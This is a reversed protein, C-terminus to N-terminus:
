RRGVEILIERLLKEISPYEQGALAEPGEVKMPLGDARFFLDDTEVGPLAAPIVLDAPQVPSQKFPDIIVRPKDALAQPIKRSQLSDPHPEFVLISQVSEALKKQDLQPDGSPKFTRSFDTGWPTGAKELSLRCFGEVNAGGDWLPMIVMRQRGERNVKGAWQFMAELSDKGTKEPDVFLAIFSAREMAKIMLPFDRHPFTNDPRPQILEEIFATDAEFPIQFYQQCLPEIITQETNVATLSRDHHGRETYRGRPFVSYRSLHRHHTILPDARWFIVANAQDRVEDLLATPWGIKKVQDYFAQLGSFVWPLWIGKLDEALTWTEQLAAGGLSDAGLILAPTRTRLLDAAEKLRETLQSASLPPMRGEADITGLRHRGVECLNLTRCIRGQQLYFSIDDCLCSCGACLLSHQEADYVVSTVEIDKSNNEKKDDRKLPSDAKNEM